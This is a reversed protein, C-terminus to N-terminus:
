NYFAGLVAFLFSLVVQGILFIGLLWILPHTRRKQVEAQVPVPVGNSDLKTTVNFITSKAEPHKQLYLRHLIIALLTLTADVIGCAALLRYYFGGFDAENTWILPLILLIVIGMFVFNAYVIRDILTQKGLTQALMDGHLSAFLLVGYTAYLKGVFEGPLIQWVGFVSTFFSLVILAFVTNNFVALKSGSAKAAQDVFALSALAHFAVLGLTFLSRMFIENFSGVLVAVVALTAAAILSGIMVQISLKKLQPSNM